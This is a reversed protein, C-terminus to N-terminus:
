RSDSEEIRQRRIVLRYPRESRAPTYSLEAIWQKELRLDRKGRERARQSAPRKRSPTNRREGRTRAETARFPSWCRDGLADALASFNQQSGSLWPSPSVTKRRVCRLHGPLAFASDGRVLVSKFRRRLMPVLDLLTKAAGESCAVNGPRNV